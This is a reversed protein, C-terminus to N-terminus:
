QKVLVQALPSILAAESRFERRAPVELAVLTVSFPSAFLVPPVNARQRCALGVRVWLTSLKVTHKSVM